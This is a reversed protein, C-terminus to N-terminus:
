EPGEWQACAEQLRQIVKRRYDAEATERAGSRLIREVGIDILRQYPGAAFDYRGIADVLGAFLLREETAQARAAWAEAAATALSLTSHTEIAAPPVGPAIEIVYWCANPAPQTSYTKM